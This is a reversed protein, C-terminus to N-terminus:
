YRPPWYGHLSSVNQLARDMNDSTLQGLPFDLGRFDCYLKCVGKSRDGVGEIQLDAIYDRGAPRHIILRLSTSVPDQTTRKLKCNKLARLVGRIESPSEIISSRDEDLQVYEVVASDLKFFAHYNYSAFLTIWFGPLICIFALIAWPLIKRREVYANLLLFFSVCTPILGLFSLAPEFASLVVIGYAFFLLTFFVAVAFHFGRNEQINTLLQGAPFAIALLLMWKPAMDADFISGLQIGAVIAVSAALIGALLIYELPFTGSPLKTPLIWDTETTKQILKGRDDRLPIGIMESANVATKHAINLPFGHALRINENSKLCLFIQWKGENEKLFVHDIDSFPLPYQRGPIGLIQRSPDLISIEYSLSRYYLIWALGLVGFVILCFAMVKSCISVMTLDAAGFVLMFSCIIGTLISTWNSGQMSTFVIGVPSFFSLTVPLKKRNQDRM